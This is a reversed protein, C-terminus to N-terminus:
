DLEDTDSRVALVVILALLAADQVWPMFGGTHTVHLLQYVTLTGVFFAAFELNVADWEVHHTPGITWMLMMVGVLIFAVDFGHDNAIDRVYPPWIFPQPACIMNIGVGILALAIIVHYPNDKVGALAVRASQKFKALM